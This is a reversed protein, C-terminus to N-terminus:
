TREASYKHRLITAFPPGKQHRPHPPPTPPNTVSFNKKPSTPILFRLEGEEILNPVSQNAYHIFNITHIMKLGFYVWHHHFLSLQLLFPRCHTHPQLRSVSKLAVLMSDILPVLPLCRESWDLGHGKQLSIFCLMM